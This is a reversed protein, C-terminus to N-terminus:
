LPVYENGNWIQLMAPVADPRSRQAERLADANDRAGIMIYGTYRSQCRYSILGPAALPLSELPNAKFM